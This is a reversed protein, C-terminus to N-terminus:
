VVRAPRVLAELISRRVLPIESGVFHFLRRLIFCPNGVADPTANMLFAARRRPNFADVRFPSPMLGRPL